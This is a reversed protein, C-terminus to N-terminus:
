LSTASTSNADFTTPRGTLHVDVRESDKRQSACARSLTVSASSASSLLPLKRAMRAVTTAQM